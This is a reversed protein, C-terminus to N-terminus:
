SGSVKRYANVQSVWTHRLHTPDANTTQKVADDLHKMTIDKLVTLKKKLDDVYDKSEKLGMGSHEKQKKVAQLLEGREILEVIEHFHTGEPQIKLLREEVKAQIMKLEDYDARELHMLVLITAKTM